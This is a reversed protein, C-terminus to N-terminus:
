FGCTAALSSSDLNHVINIVNVDIFGTNDGFIDGIRKQNVAMFEIKTNINTDSTVLRETDIDKLFSQSSKSRFSVSLLNVFLVFVHMQGIIRDILFIFLENLILVCLLIIETIFPTQTSETLM